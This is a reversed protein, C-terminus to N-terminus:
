SIFKIFHKGLVSPLFIKYDQKNFEIKLFLISVLVYEFIRVKPLIKRQIELENELM